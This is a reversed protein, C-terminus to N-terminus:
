EKSVIALFDPREALSPKAQQSVKGAIGFRYRHDLIRRHVNAVLGVIDPVEVHNELFMAHSRYMIGMGPRALNVQPGDDIQLGGLSVPLESHNGLLNRRQNFFVIARKGAFVAVPPKPTFKDGFHHAYVVVFQHPLHLLHPVRFTNKVGPFNHIRGWHIGEQAIFGPLLRRIKLGIKTIFVLVYKLVGLLAVARPIAAFGFQRASGHTGTEHGGAVFFVTRPRPCIDQALHQRVGFFLIAKIM